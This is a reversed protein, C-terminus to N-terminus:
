WKRVDTFDIECRCSPCSGILYDGLGTGGEFLELFISCSNCKAYINGECTETIGNAKGIYEMDSYKELFWHFSLSGQKGAELKKIECELIKEEEDLKDMEERTKYLLSYAKEEIADIEELRKKIEEIRDM